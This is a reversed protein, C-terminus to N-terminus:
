DAMVLETGSALVVPLGDAYAEFKTNTKIDDEPKKGTTGEYGTMQAPLCCGGFLFRLGSCDSREVVMILNDNKALALFKAYASSIGAYDFDLELMSKLNGPSGASKWKLEGTKNVVEISNFGNGTGSFVFDGTAILYHDDITKVDPLAPCATILSAEAFLVKYKVGAINNGLTEKSINSYKGM